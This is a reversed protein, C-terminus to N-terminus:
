RAAKRGASPGDIKELRRQLDWRMWLTLVEALQILGWLLWTMREASQIAWPLCFWGVILVVLRMACGLSVGVFPPGYEYLNRVRGPIAFLESVGAILIPWEMHADVIWAWIATSDSATQDQWSTHNLRSRVGIAIAAAVLLGIWLRLAGVSDKRLDPHQTLVYVWPMAFLVALYQAVMPLALHWVTAHGVIIARASTVAVALTVILQLAVSTPTLRGGECAVIHRADAISLKNVLKADSGSPRQRREM